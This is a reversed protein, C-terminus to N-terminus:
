IYVVSFREDHSGNGMIWVYEIFEQPPFPHSLSQLIAKESNIHDVQKLRVFLGCFCMQKITHWYATFRFHYCLYYGIWKASEAHSLIEDCTVYCWKFMFSSLTYHVKDPRCEPWASKVENTISVASIVQSPSSGIVKLLPEEIRPAAFRKVRDFHIRRSEFGCGSPRFM